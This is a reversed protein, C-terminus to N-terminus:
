RVAHGAAGERALAWGADMAAFANGYGLATSPAAVVGDPLALAGPGREVDLAFALAGIRWPRLPMPRADWVRLLAERAATIGGQPPAAVRLLATGPEPLSSMDAGPYACADVVGADACVVARLFRGAGAGALPRSVTEPTADVVREAAAEHLGSADAYTVAFGSRRREVCCVQALYRLCFPQEMAWDALLLGLAGCAIRGGRLVGTQRARELLDATLRGGTREWGAGPAFAGVYEGGLSSGSELVLAGKGVAAAVGLGLSHGGVVITHYEAMRMGTGM